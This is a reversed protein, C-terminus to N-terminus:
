RFVRICIKRRFVKFCKRISGEEYDVSPPQVQDIISLSVSEPKIQFEEGHLSIALCDNVRDTRCAVMYAGLPLQSYQITGKNIIFMAELMLRSDNLSLLGEVERVQYNRDSYKQNGDIVPAIMGALQGAQGGIRAADLGKALLPNFQVGFIQSFQPALEKALIVAQDNILDPPSTPTYTLTPNPTDTLTPTPTDTPTPTPTPTSTDTSTPSSPPTDTSTPTPSMDVVNIEVSWPENAEPGIGFLAGSANKFMWFGRYQGVTLPATMNISVDFTQGVAVNQPFAASSPASMQEGNSFVVQYSTSWACSGVNRLRWTKTFTEGPLMVTGPPITVHEIFEARDCASPLVTTTPTAPTLTTSTLAAQIPNQDVPLAVSNERTPACSAVMLFALFIMMMSLSIWSLKRMM